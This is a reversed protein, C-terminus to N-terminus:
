DNDKDEILEVWSGTWESCNGVDCTLWYGNWLESWGVKCIQGELSHNRKLVKVKDGAFVDKGNKDKTVFLAGGTINRIDGDRHRYRIMTRKEKEAKKVKEVLGTPWTVFSRQGFKTIM